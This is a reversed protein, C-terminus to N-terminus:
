DKSRMRWIGTTNPTTVRWSVVYLEVQSMRERFFVQAVDLNGNIAVADYILYEYQGTVHNLVLEEDLVIKDHPVSDFRMKLRLNPEVIFFHMLRDILFVFDRIAFLMIHGEKRM